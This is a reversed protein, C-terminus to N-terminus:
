RENDTKVVDRNSHFFTFHRSRTCSAFTTSVVSSSPMWEFSASRHCQFFNRVHRMFKKKTHTAHFLNVKKRWLANDQLRNENVKITTHVDRCRTYIPHHSISCLKLTSWADSFNIWGCHTLRSIHRKHKNVPFLLIESPLISPHSHSFMEMLFNTTTHFNKTKWNSFNM